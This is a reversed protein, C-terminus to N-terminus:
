VSYITPLTLHTYSVAEAWEPTKEVGDKGGTIYDLYSEAGDVGEPMHDRDFGICYRDLFDQDHLGRSCIVYAMGDMLASDTGPRLGIWEDAYAKATDSYRPDVVIVKAGKQKAKRLYHLTTGFRTEVPNHGWLIILKSNVWDDLSNGTMITGYTYTTAIKTCASSYSNYYDLFGGDLALLRKACQDGRLLALIGTAYNVYRSGVGFTRKIHKWRDVIESVAEDWSIREFKAEGRAGTRRMPYRLRRDNLFSDIYQSGRACYCLPVLGDAGHPSDTTLREIKGGKVHANIICRGGCNNVGSTHFIKVDEESALGSYNSGM